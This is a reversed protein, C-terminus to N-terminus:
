TAACMGTSPVRGQPLGEHVRDAPEAATFTSHRCSLKRYKLENPALVWRWSTAAWLRLLHMYTGSHHAHFREECRDHQSRSM